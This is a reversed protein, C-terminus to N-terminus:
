EVVRFDFLESCGKPRLAVNPSSLSAVLTRHDVLPQKAVMHMSAIADTSDESGAEDM